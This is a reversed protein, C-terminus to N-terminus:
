KESADLQDKVKRTEGQRVLTFSDVESISTDMPYSKM